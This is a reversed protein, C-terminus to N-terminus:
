RLQIPSNFVDGGQPFQHPISQCSGNCWISTEKRQLEAHKWISAGNKKNNRTEEEQWIREKREMRTEEIRHKAMRHQRMSSHCAFERNCACCTTRNMQPGSMGRHLTFASGTMSTPYECEPLWSLTQAICALSELPFETTIGWFFSCSQQVLQPVLSRNPYQNPRFGVHDSISLQAPYASPLKGPRVLQISFIELAFNKREANKHVLLKEMNDNASFKFCVNM